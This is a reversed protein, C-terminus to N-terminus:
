QVTTRLGGSVALVRGCVTESEAENPDSGWDTTICVDLLLMSVVIEGSLVIADVVGCGAILEAAVIRGVVSCELAVFVATKEVSYEGVRSTAVFLEVEPRGLAVPGM